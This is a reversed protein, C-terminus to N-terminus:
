GIVARLGCVVLLVYKLVNLMIWNLIAGSCLACFMSCLVYLVTLERQEKSRRRWVWVERM